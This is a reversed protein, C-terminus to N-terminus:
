GKIEDKFLEYYILDDESMEGSKSMSYVWEDFIEDDSKSNENKNVFDNARHTLIVKERIDRLRIIAEARANEMENRRKHGIRESISYIFLMVSIIIGTISFSYCAWVFLLASFVTSVWTSIYIAKKIKFLELTSRLLRGGDMPFIPLLNFLCMVANFVIALVLVFVGTSLEEVKTDGSPFEMLGLLFPSLFLIFMVINTLPGAFAVWLAQKPTIKDLEEKLHAIGGLLTLQVRETEIGYRRAALIHGYEHVIVFSFVMCLIGINRLISTVTLNDYDLTILILLFWSTNVFVEVGFLKFLKIDRFLNRLM